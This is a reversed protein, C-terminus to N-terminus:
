YTELLFSKKTKMMMKPVCPSRNKKRLQILKCFKGRLKDLFIDTQSVRESLKKEELNKYKPTFMQYKVIKGDTLGCAIAKIMQLVILDIREVSLSVFASTSATKELLTLLKQSQLRFM